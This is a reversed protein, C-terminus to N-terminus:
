GLSLLSRAGQRRGIINLLNSLANESGEDASAEGTFRLRAGVWQGQGSLQLPGQLTSLTIEPTPSGEPTGRMQIQYSGMPRLTSLQSSMAQAQLEVLGRMQLRGQAWTLGWSETRLLLQGVPQLTNWPAGLGSLLAAPWQSQHADVGMTIGSLNGSLWVQSPANMCCDAQLHLRLSLWGPEIRWQIRGPLAQADRSGQGGSLVLQASGEWLTGRAAPLLVRQASAQAVGWSLWRAPAWVWLAALAGLATGTVAWRWTRATHDNPTLTRRM